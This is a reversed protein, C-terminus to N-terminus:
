RPPAGKERTAGAPAIGDFTVDTEWDETEPPPHDIAQATDDDLVPEAAGQPTAAASPPAVAVPEPKPALKTRLAEAIADGGTIPAEGGVIRQWLQAYISGYGRAVLTAPPAKGKAAQELGAEFVHSMWELRFRSVHQSVVEPHMPLMGLAECERAHIEPRWLFQVFRYGVDAAHARAPLAWVWDQRFSFSPSTRAAHHDPRLELSAGNPLETFELDAPDEVQALANAHAGGHLSFADMADIPALFLEGKQLEALVQDDSFPAPGYMAPLYLSQARYLAEWEFYDRAPRSDPEGFVDDSVGEGYLGAAIDIQGDLADGTRHAVRPRAPQGDYRRHAWYFAMVFVDYADWQDPSLNLEYSAPLGHGNVQALAADIQPRLQAWHLIADRVKSVRYVLVDVVTMRPLFAQVGGRKGPALLKDGLREFDRAIRAPAIADTYPRVLKAELAHDIQLAPLAVGVVDKGEDLAKSAAPLLQAEDDVRILRLDLNAERDFDGLVNDEFWKAQVPDLQMVVYRPPGSSAHPAVPYFNVVAFFGDVAVGVVIAAVLLTKIM